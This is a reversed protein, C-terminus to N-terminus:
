LELNHSQTPLLLVARPVRRCVRPHSPVTTGHTQYISGLAVAYQVSYQVRFLCLLKAFFSMAGDKYEGALVVLKKAEIQLQMNQGPTRGV